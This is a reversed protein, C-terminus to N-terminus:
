CSKRNEVRIFSDITAGVFTEEWVRDVGEATTLDWGGCLGEKTKLPDSSTEEPSDNTGGDKPDNEGGGQSGNGSNEPAIDGDVQRTNLPSAAAAVVLALLSVSAKM